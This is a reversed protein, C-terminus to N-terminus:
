VFVRHKWLYVMLVAGILSQSVSVFPSSKEVSRTRGRTNALVQKAASMFVVVGFLSFFGLVTSKLLVFGVLSETLTLIIILALSNKEGLTVAITRKNTRKDVIIDEFELWLHSRSLLLCHFVWSEWSPYPLANLKCSFLPILLHGIIMVPLEFPCKRSFQFPKNNYAFNVVVASTLWLALYSILEPDNFALLSLSGINIAAIWKPLERLLARPLKAGYVFNGKRSNDTDVDEDVMDNMGYVLLNLPFTCYLLGLWFQINSIIPLAGGTPWLYLWIFVLWLGPRSVKLLDSVRMVIGSFKIFTYAGCLSPYCGIAPSARYFNRAFSLRKLM